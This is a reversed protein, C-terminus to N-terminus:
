IRLSPMPFDDVGFARNVGDPDENMGMITVKRSNTDVKYLTNEYGKAKCRVLFVGPKYPRVDEVTKGKVAINFIAEVKANRM